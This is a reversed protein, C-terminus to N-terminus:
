AINLGIEAGLRHVDDAFAQAENKRGGFGVESIRGAIRSFGISYKGAGRQDYFSLIHSLLASDPQYPPRLLHRGAETLLLALAEEKGLAPRALPILDQGFSSVSSAWLRHGSPLNPLFQQDAEFGKILLEACAAAIDPQPMELCQRRRCNSNEMCPGCAATAQYIIHGAGYPGTEPGYAPGFFLALVPRGKAAALHMVGTDGSVLLDLIEITSALSELDTSGVLDVVKKDGWLSIFKRALAREEKSGLLVPTFDLGKGLLEEGLRIFNEVPWRRLHNRCGLQLGILVGEPRDLGIEASVEPWYVPLPKAEPILSNWVDVLNFRGLKRDITMLGLLFLRGPSFRLGNEFLRPGFYQGAKIMAGAQAAELHSNLVYVQEFFGQNVAEETSTLVQDVLPSIRAAELVSADRALIFMGAGPHLRRLNALLPTSQIFDGLKALQILLIKEM